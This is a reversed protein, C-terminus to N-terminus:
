RDISHACDATIDVRGRQIDAQHTNSLVAAPLTSLPRCDIISEAESQLWVKVERCMSTTWRRTTSSPQKTHHVIYSM